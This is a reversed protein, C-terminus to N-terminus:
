WWHFVSFLNCITYYPLSSFKISQNVLCRAGSGSTALLQILRPKLPSICPRVFFIRTREDSPRQEIRSAEYNSGWHPGPMFAFHFPAAKSSEGALWFLNIRRSLPYWFKQLCQLLAREDIMDVEHSLCGCSFSTIKLNLDHSLEQNQQRPNISHGQLWWRIYLGLAVRGGGSNHLWSRNSRM